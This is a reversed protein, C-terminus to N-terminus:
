ICRTDSGYHPLPEAPIVILQGSQPDRAFQYPPPLSAPLSSPYGPPLTQHLSSPALGSCLLLTSIDVLM